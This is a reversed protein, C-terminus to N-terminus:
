LLSGIQSTDEPADDEIPRTNNINRYPQGGNKNPTKRYDGMFERGILEPANEASLEQMESESVGLGRLFQKHRAMAEKLKAREEPSMADIDDRTLDPYVSFSQPVAKGHFESDYDNVNVTYNAKTYPKGGDSPTYTNWGSKTVIWRYTGNEIHFPDDAIEDVDLEGFIGGTM